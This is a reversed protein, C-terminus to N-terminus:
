RILFVKGIQVHLGSQFHGDDRTALEGVYIRIETSRLGLCLVEPWNKAHKKLM